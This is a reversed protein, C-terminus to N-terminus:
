AHVFNSPPYHRLSWETHTAPPRRFPGGSQVLDYAREQAGSPLLPWARPLCKTADGSCIQHRRCDGRQCVRWLPLSEAYLKRIAAFAEERLAAEGDPTTRKYFLGRRSSKGRRRKKMERGNRKIEPGM